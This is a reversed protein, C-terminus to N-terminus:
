NAKKEYFYDEFLILGVALLLESFINLVIGVERAAM